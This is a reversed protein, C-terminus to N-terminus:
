AQAEYNEIGGMAIPVAPGRGYLEPFRKPEGYIEPNILGAPREGKILAVIARAVSKNLEGRVQWTAGGNHPTLIVNELKRLEDPVWPEYRMPPEHWFTDLAAGAITGDLLAKILAPQDVIRGRATNVLYATRKM